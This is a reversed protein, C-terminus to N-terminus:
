ARFEKLLSTIMAPTADPSLANARLLDYDDRAAAVTRAADHMRGGVRTETYM